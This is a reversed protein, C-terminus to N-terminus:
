YMSPSSYPIHESSMPIPSNAPSRPSPRPAVAHRITETVYLDKEIIQRLQRVGMDLSAQAYNVIRDWAPPDGVLEAIEPIAPRTGEGNRAQHEPVLLHGRASM